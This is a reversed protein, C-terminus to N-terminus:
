GHCNKFRRGSGCPCPDTRSVPGHSLAKQVKLAAMDVPGIHERKDNAQHTFEGDADVYHLLVQVWYDFDPDDRWHPVDAGKYVMLDGADLEIAREQGASEVWIPWLADARYGATLTASIECSARDTHRPLCSGTTYVRLFSYCPLLRRETVQELTGQVEILIAESLADAYRGMAQAFENHEYYGVVNQYSLAYRTVLSLSQPQLLGRLVAYGHERFHAQLDTKSESTAM